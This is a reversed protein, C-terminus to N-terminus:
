QRKEKVQSLAYVFDRVNGTAAGMFGRLPSIMSGVLKGLLEERSPIEALAEVKEAKAMEGFLVGSKTNLVKYEKQMDKLIKAPETIDEGCIIVGTADEIEQLKTPQEKEQAAIKFITNKVVFFESGTEKLNQKLKTIQPMTVGHMDVLIYNPNDELATKYQELLQKKEERTKAM